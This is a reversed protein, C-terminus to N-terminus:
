RRRGVARARGPHVRDDGVAFGRDALFAQELMAEIKPRSRLSTSLRVNGTNIHTAVDTCGAGECAATIHTPSFQHHSGLNIARLFAVYTPM